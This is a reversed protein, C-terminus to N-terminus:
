LAGMAKFVGYIIGSLIFIIIWTLREESRLRQFEHDLIQREKRMQTVLAKVETVAGKGFEREMDQYMGEEAARIKRVERYEEAADVFVLDGRRQLQLQKKKWAVRARAEEDLFSNVEKGTEKIERGVKLAEKIGGLASRAVESANGSELSM